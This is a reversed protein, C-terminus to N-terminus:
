KNDPKEFISKTINSIEEKVLSEVIPRINQEVWQAVAAKITDVIFKDLSGNIKYKEANSVSDKTKSLDRVVSAFDRLITQAGQRSGAEGDFPLKQLDSDPSPEDAPYEFPLGHNQSENEVHLEHVNLGDSSSRLANKIFDPMDINNAHTGSVDDLPSLRVVDENKEASEEEVRVFKKISNLIDEISTDNEQTM